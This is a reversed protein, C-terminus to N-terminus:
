ELILEPQAHRKKWAKNKILFLGWHFYRTVWIWFPVMAWKRLGSMKEFVALRKLAKPSFQTSDKALARGLRMFEYYLQVKILPQPIGRVSEVGGRVATGIYHCGLRGALRKLYKEIYRSHLPEPFGSQVIFGIHKDKLKGRLPAMDEFFRKVKSPMSDVYLPLAIIIHTGAQLLKINKDRCNERNLYYFEAEAYGGKRLGANFYNLILRTNSHIGRPSGNFCILRM